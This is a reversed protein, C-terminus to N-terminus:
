PICSREGFADILPVAFAFPFIRASLDADNGSTGTSQYYRSYRNPPVEIGRGVLDSPADSRARDFSAGRVNFKLIAAPSLFMLTM